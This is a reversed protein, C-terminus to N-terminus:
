DRSRLRRKRRPTAERAEDGEVGRSARPTKPDASNLLAARMKSMVQEFDATKDPRIAVTLLATEGMLALKPQAHQPAPQQGGAGVSSAVIVIVGVSLVRIWM